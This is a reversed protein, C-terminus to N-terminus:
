LSSFEWMGSMHSLDDKRSKCQNCTVKNQVLGRLGNYATVYQNCKPCMIAFKGM